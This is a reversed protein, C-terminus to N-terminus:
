LQRLLVYKQVYKDLTTSHSQIHYCTLALAVTSVHGVPLTLYKANGRNASKSPIGIKLQIFIMELMFLLELVKTM